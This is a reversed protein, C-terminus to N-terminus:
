SNYGAASTLMDTTRGRDNPHSLLRKTSCESATIASTPRPSLAVLGVYLFSEFQTTTPDGLGYTVSALGPRQVFM